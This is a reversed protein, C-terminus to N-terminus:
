FLSIQNSVPLDDLCGHERLIDVVTRSLKAREQLDEISIFPGQKRTEVINKAASEGLGQLSNLPPLLKDGAIIFERSDSKYLDVPLFGFGRCYMERAIELITLMSKEKQTLNNKRAELERIKKGVNEKGSVILHADFENARVTFYAAYFALPYHVKYYAIRFAMTVYAVAHAKPFMYKIKNCSEIYWEPVEVSKMAKIDDEELGKGKRVREMIKFAHKPEMGKQILFIMIDDRTSIVEKLTATGKLILDQANNLWVDTGHSLGSIRVLEAFTTPKTDELMQRVFKTGFEPIGLSGVTCDIEESPVGLPETSSFIEMTERDDLPVTRPDKGTLNHLMKLMTPDDHGLIDLKLLRGSLAHYDFHTTVVDASMDDAPKQVPTFQYIEMDIPVIMVGGPHQGTTRKIGACGQVLRNIEANHVVLGREEIYKKVFGYATKDALTAITGARYVHDEGFLEETYRHARSQYEGSFNLDIDPEKDGEFGMFVEFPIDFGMKDMLNGCRPCERDELDVGTGVSGDLIFENHKCRRCLYHPPLPNVETIGSMTAVLSSGVSGRSGVLYGDKLSKSVLRQAIIYMVAYGNEIIAKLERDLRRRVIEPLPTGYIEEARNVTMQMLEDEAGPIKPAYTEQPIPTIEEIMENIINPNEIVVKRALDLGLYEFEEIMEETTRLYLPAQDDADDFGKGAMIIRRFVEDEPEIFHVDGTAVVPIGVKEGLRCIKLNIQKLEEMNKVTGNEVLFKNNDLPQIELYDYFRAINFLEPFNKGEVIARYLEGAECASGVLLGERFEKLLSKPMRPYKYFYDLHSKSILRYLNEMGKQNKALIIVHYAKLSSANINKRGIGNIDRISQIGRSKLEDICKALIQAAAMADDSARHHEKLKVKLHKAVISLRHSKLEPFLLRTLGLTDLVTNGVTINMRAAKERIFGMDFSANHAALISEEAFSLFSPLVDEIFPCDKVMDNSIGTLETIKEPIEIKPNVLSHFTDIVRGNQIKVAGIETIEDRVPDLGTTEIDFVVIVDDLSHLGDGIYVDQCDNVLYGEVGYIIKIGAKKGADYAEPFSQIVGHDTIAIAPHGWNSAKKILGEVSAVGDMASFRTHAHLEIRKEPSSDTREAKPIKVINKGIIITEKIFKNYQCEGKVRIRDGIKLNNEITQENNKDVFIRTEISDKYDTIFVSVIKTFKQSNIDRTEIKFIDGEIVVTGAEQVVQSIPMPEDRFGKGFLVEDVQAKVGKSRKNTKIISKVEIMELKNKEKEFEREVAFRDAKDEWSLEVDVTINGLAKIIQGTLKSFGKGKLMHVAMENDFIIRLKKNEVKHFCNELWAACAPYQLKWVEILFGWNSKILQDVDTYRRSNILRISLNKCNSFRKLIDREIEESKIEQSNYNVFIMLENRNKNVIVRNINYNEAQM